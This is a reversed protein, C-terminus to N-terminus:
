FHRGAGGGNHTGGFGSHSHYSNSSHSSYQARRREEEERRRKRREEEREEKDKIAQKLLITLTSLTAGAFYTKAGSSLSDYYRNAEKLRSLNDERGKSIGSILSLIQKEARKAEEKEKKEKMMKDYAVKLEAAKQYRRQVEMINEKVFEKEEKTLSQYSFIVGGLEGVIDKSVELICVKKIAEDVKFARQKCAAIREAEIMDSVDKDMSPFLNEARHYRDQLKELKRNIDDLENQKQLNMQKERSIVENSKNLIDQWYDEREQRIRESKELQKTLTMIKERRLKIKKKLWTFLFLIGGLFLIGSIGALINPLMEQFEKEREKALKENEQEQIIQSEVEDILSSQLSILGESFQEKKFYPMAYDDIFRGAKSDPIYGEMRKGVAVYIDRNGAGTGTSFLILIGRSDKGIGYKNYMEHAYDSAEMDGLSKVTTVVVQTGDYSSELAEAKEMLMEKQAENLISAFDNVLFESTPDPIETKAFVPISFLMVLIAIVLSSTLIKFRKM